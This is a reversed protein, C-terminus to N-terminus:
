GVFRFTSIPSLIPNSFEGWGLRLILPQFEEGLTGVQGELEDQSILSNNDKFQIM